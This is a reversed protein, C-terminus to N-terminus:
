AMRQTAWRSSCWTEDMQFFVVMPVGGVVQSPLVVDAYSDGFDLVKPLQTAAGASNKCRYRRPSAGNREIGFKEWGPLPTRPVPLAIVAIGVAHRVLRTM